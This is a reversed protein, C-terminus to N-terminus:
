FGLRDGFLYSFCYWFISFSACSVKFSKSVLSLSLIVTSSKCLLFYSISYLRLYDSFLKLLFNFYVLDWLCFIFHLWLASYSYPLGDELLDCSSIVWWFKFDNSFTFEIYFKSISVLWIGLSLFIHNFTLLESALDDLNNWLWLPNADPLCITAFLYCSVLGIVVFPGLFGMKNLWRFEFWFKFLTPWSVM